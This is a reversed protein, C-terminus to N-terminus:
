NLVFFGLGTSIPKAKTKATQPLLHPLEVDSPKFAL